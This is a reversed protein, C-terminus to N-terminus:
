LREGKRLIARIKPSAIPVWMAGKSGFAVSGDEQLFNLAANLSRRTTPHGWRTLIAMLQNRSLPGPAERLAFRIYEITALTPNAGPRALQIPPARTAM